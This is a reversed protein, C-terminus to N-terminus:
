REYFPKERFDVNVGAVRVVDDNWAGPGFAGGMLSGDSALPLEVGLGQLIEAAEEVIEPTAGPCRYAAMAHNAAGAVDGRALCDRAVKLDWNPIDEQPAPYCLLSGEIRGPDALFLNALVVADACNHVLIKNAFYENEGDVTLNYIPAKGSPSVSVVHVPVASSQDPHHASFNEAVLRALSRPSTPRTKTIGDSVVPERAFGTLTACGRANTYSEVGTASGSRPEAIRGLKAATSPTGPEGRRAKTGSPLFFAYKQLLAVSRPVRAEM